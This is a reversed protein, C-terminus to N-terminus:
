GHPNHPAIVPYGFKASELEIGSGTTTLSGGTLSQLTTPAGAGGATGLFNQVTFLGGLTSKTFSFLQPASGGGAPTGSGLTSGGIPSQTTTVSVLEIKSGGGSSGGLAGGLGGTTWTFSGFKPLNGLLNNVWTELTALGPPVTTSTTTILGGFGFDHHGTGGSGGSPGSGGKPGTPGSGTSGTPGSKGTPGTPGSQGTPGTTGTAGTSGTTGTTGTTGTLGTV